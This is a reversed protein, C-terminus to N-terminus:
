FMDDLMDLIDIENNPKSTRNINTYEIKPQSSEFNANAEIAAEESKRKFYIPMKRVIVALDYLIREEDTQPGVGRMRNNRYIKDLNHQGWKWAGLLDYNNIPNCRKNKYVGNNLQAIVEFLRDPPSVIDYASILYNNIEDRAWYNKLTNKANEEYKDINDITEQWTQWVGKKADVKKTAHDILCSTHYYKGKRLAIDHIDHVNIELLEKCKDCKRVLVDGLGSM